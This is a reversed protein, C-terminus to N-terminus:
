WYFLIKIVFTKFKSAIFLEPVHRFRVVEPVITDMSTPVLLSDYYPKGCWVVLYFSSSISILKGQEWFLIYQIPWKIWRGYPFELAFRWPNERYIGFDVNIHLEWQNDKKIKTVISQKMKSVLNLQRTRRSEIKGMSFVRLISALHVNWVCM